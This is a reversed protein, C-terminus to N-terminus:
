DSAGRKQRVEFVDKLYEYLKRCESGNMFIVSSDGGDVEILRIGTKWTGYEANYYDAVMILERSSLATNNHTINETEKSPKNIFAHNKEKKFM